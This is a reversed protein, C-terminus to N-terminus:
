QQSLFDTQINIIKKTNQREPPINNIKVILYSAYNGNCIIFILFFELFLVCSIVISLYSMYCMDM